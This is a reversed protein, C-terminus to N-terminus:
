FPLLYNKHVKINIKAEEIGRESQRQTPKLHIQFSKPDQLTSLHWDFTSDWQRLSEHHLSGRNLTTEAHSRPTAAARSLVSCSLFPKKGKNPMMGFEYKVIEVTCVM